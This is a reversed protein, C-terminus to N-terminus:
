LSEKINTKFRANISERIMDNNGSNEMKIVINHYDSQIICRKYTEIECEISSIKDNTENLAITFWKKCELTYILMEDEDRNDYYEFYELEKDVQELNKQLHSKKRVEDHLYREMIEKLKQLSDMEEQLHKPIEETTINNNVISQAALVKLTPSFYM